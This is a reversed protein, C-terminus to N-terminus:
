IRENLYIQHGVPVIKHTGMPRNISLPYILNGRPTGDRRQVENNEFIIIFCIITQSATM